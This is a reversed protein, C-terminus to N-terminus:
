ASPSDSNELFRTTKANRHPIEEIKITIPLDTRCLRESGSAM